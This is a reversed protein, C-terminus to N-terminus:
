ALSSITRIYGSSTSWVALVGESKESWEFPTQERRAVRGRGGKSSYDFMGGFICRGLYALPIVMKLSPM